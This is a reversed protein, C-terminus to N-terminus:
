AVVLVQPAAAKMRTSLWKLHIATEHECSQVVGLLDQDRAGQAAQGVLTWTIDCETAMLYLDHLDRLLALPGERPGGFLESHLREPEDDEDEGYRRAFPALARAHREADDALAHCLHWVDPEDRHRDGVQRFAGALQDCSRELLSLYHALQM